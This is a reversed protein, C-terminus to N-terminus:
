AEVPEAEEFKLSLVQSVGNDQISIGYLVCAARMTAQNHTIIIFQTTQALEEVIRAFRHTNAEDLAADVEDLVVFPSPNTAMIASILAISTMAREGGSLLNISKLRKGPPTAQIEIGIVRNPNEIGSELNETDAEENAEMEVDKACIEKLSCTGGGFLIKFYHEFQKQIQAFAQSSQKKIQEELEDVLKETERLASVLDAIQEELYDHRIKAEEYEAVTEEDIGGIMDLKHRLQQIRVHLDDTNARGKYTKAAGVHDGLTEIMDHELDELRTEVRALNVRAENRKSEEVRLQDQLSLLSNQLAFFAKRENKSKEAHDHLAQKITALETVVASEQTQLARISTVLEASPKQSEPAPKQLRRLLEESQELIHDMARANLTGHASQEKLLKLASSLAAIREIIMSLPLPTWTNASKVKAIEFRKQAEFLRERIETRKEQLADYRVQITSIEESDTDDTEIPAQEMHAMRDRETQLAQAQKDATAECLDHVRETERLQKQLDNWLTGFYAIQANNLETEVADRQGLHKVLRRLTTLRPSIEQVVREAQELNERTRRLKLAAQHRKLQLPKVGTADDFFSKREEPSASLVHDVQGQGVVSYSKQGVNAQALFMHVDALRVTKGNIAYQSEGDRYLRRSIRAESFDIGEIGSVDAFTLEVEAFGARAKGDSGSFIVDTAAKGRLLKMSQEGLVWRIADAVNSKGSGNPGVVATIAHTGNQPDLFRLTTKRAFTKFGQLSLEKLFM